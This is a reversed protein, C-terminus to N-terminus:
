YTGGMPQASEHLARVTQNIEFAPLQDLSQSGVDAAVGQSMDTQVSVDTVVVNYFENISEDVCDSTLSQERSDDAKSPSLESDPQKDKASALMSSLVSDVSPRCVTITELRQLRDALECDTDRVDEVVQSLKVMREEVDSLRPVLTECVGDVIRKIVAEPFPERLGPPGLLVKMTQVENTLQSIMHLLNTKGISQRERRVPWSSPRVPMRLLSDSDFNAMRAQSCSLM